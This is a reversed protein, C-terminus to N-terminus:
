SNIHFGEYLVCSLFSSVKEKGLHIYGQFSSVEKFHVSEETWITGPQVTFFATQRLRSGYIRAM